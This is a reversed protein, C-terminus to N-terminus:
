GETELSQTWLKLIPSDYQTPIQVLPQVVVVGGYEEMPAVEVGYTGILLVVSVAQGGVFVWVPSVLLQLHKISWWKKNAQVVTKNCDLFIDRKAEADIETWNLELGM